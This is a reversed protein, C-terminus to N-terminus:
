PSGEMRSRNQTSRDSGQAAHLDIVWDNCRMFHGRPYEFTSAGENTFGAKRCVANSAANDVAPYAHMFRHIGEAKAYSVITRAAESAIGRGAYEPMVMWGTEYMQAGKWTREWYGISGVIITGSDIRITFMGGPGSFNAYRKQRALIQEATEVGGLHEMMQPNGLTMQLVPLDADTWAHLEIDTM